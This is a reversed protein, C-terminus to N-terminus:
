SGFSGTNGIDHEAVFVLFINCFYGFDVRFSEGEMVNAVDHLNDTKCQYLQLFPSWKAAKKKRACLFICKQLFINAYELFFYYNQLEIQTRLCTIRTHSGM